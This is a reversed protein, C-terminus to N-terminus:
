RVKLKGMLEAILHAEIDNTVATVEQNTCLGSVKTLPSTQYEIQYKPVSVKQEFRQKRAAETNHLNIFDVVAQENTVVQQQTFKYIVPKDIFTHSSISAQAIWVVDASQKHNLRFSVKVEYNSCQKSQNSKLVPENHYKIKKNTELQLDIDNSREVSLQQVNLIYDADNSNAVVLGLESLQEVVLQYQLQTLQLSKPDVWVRNNKYIPHAPLQVSKIKVPNQKASYTLFVVEKKLLPKKPLTLEPALQPTLSCASSLLLGVGLISLKRM